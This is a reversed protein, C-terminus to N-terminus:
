ENNVNERNGDQGNSSQTQIIKNETLKNFRKELAPIVVSQNVKFFQLLIENPVEEKVLPEM